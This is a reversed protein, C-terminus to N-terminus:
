NDEAGDYNQGNKLNELIKKESPSLEDPRLDFSDWYNENIEKRLGIVSVQFLEDATRKAQIITEDVDEYDGGTMHQSAARVLEKTYEQHKSKLSDPIYDIKELSYKPYKPYEPKRRHPECSTFILSFIFLQTLLLTSKISLKM